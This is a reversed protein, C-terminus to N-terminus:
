SVLMAVCYSLGVLSVLTTAGTMVADREAPGLQRRFQRSVLHTFALCELVYILVGIWRGQAALVVAPSLVWVILLIRYLRDTWEQGVVCALTKRGAPLDRAIDCGNNSFMNIAMGFMSPLAEVLVFYDLVGTQLYVGTLPILGGMVFGCFVEGLPLYSLPHKGFAYWSLVLTGIAGIVLPVIGGKWVIYAAPILAVVLFWVGIRYAARPDLGYVIVADSADPSNELTDTGKVFDSYDDFANVASQMLIVAVYFCIVMLPDLTGVRHFSIAM